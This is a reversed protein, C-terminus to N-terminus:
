SSKDERYPIGMGPTGPTPIQGKGKDAYHHRERRCAWKAGLWLDARGTRKLTAEDRCKATYLINQM